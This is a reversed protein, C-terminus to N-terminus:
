LKHLKPRGGKIVRFVRKLGVIPKGLDVLFQIDDMSSASVSNEQGGV